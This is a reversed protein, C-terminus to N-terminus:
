FFAYEKVALHERNITILKCNTHLEVRASDETTDKVIGLYGKFGGRTIIVTQARLPDGRGSFRARTGRMGSRNPSRYSGLSPPGMANPQADGALWM